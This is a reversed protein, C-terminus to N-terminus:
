YVPSPVCCPANGARTLMARLRRRVKLREHGPPGNGRNCHASQKRRSQADSQHGNAQWANGEYRDITRKARNRKGRACARARVAACQRDHRQEGTPQERHQSAERFGCSAPEKHQGAIRAHRPMPRAGQALRLYTDTAGMHTGANLAARQSLATFTAQLTLAQSFLMSEIGKMDGTHMADTQESIKNALATFDPEGVSQKSWQEMGVAAQVTAVTAAHLAIREAPTSALEKADDTNIVLTSAAVKTALAKM